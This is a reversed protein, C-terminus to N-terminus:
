SLKLGSSTKKITAEDLENAALDIMIIMQEYKWHILLLHFNAAPQFWHQDSAHSGHVCLSFSGPFVTIPIETFYRFVTSLLM